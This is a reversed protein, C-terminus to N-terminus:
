GTTHLHDYCMKQLWECASKFDNKSLDNRKIFANVVSTYTNANYRVGRKDIMDVVRLCSKVWGMRSYASLVTNHSVIDPRLAHREFISELAAEAGKGDRRRAYASLIHNCAVTNPVIKRSLMKDFFREAGEVDGQLAYGHLVSGYSIVTPRINQEYMRDLLEAAAKTDGNKSYVQLCKDYQQVTPNVAQDM